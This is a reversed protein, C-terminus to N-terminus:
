EWEMAHFGCKIGRMIGQVMEEAALNQTVMRSNQQVFCQSIKWTQKQKSRRFLYLLLCSCCRKEYNKLVQTFEQTWLGHRPQSHKCGAYPKLCYLQQCMYGSRAYDTPCRLKRMACQHNYLHHKLAETHCLHFSLFMKEPIFFANGWFIM